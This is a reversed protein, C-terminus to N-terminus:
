RVKKGLVKKHAKSIRTQAKKASKGGKAAPEKPKVKKDAVKTM